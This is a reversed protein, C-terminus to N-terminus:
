ERRRRGAPAAAILRFFQQGREFAALTGALQDDLLAAGMGPGRDVFFHLDHGIPEVLLQGRLLCDAPRQSADRDTATASGANMRMRGAVIGAARWQGDRWLMPWARGHRGGLGGRGADSREVLKAAVGHGAHEQDIKQARKGGRREQQRVLVRKAAIGVRDHRLEEKRDAEGKPQREAAPRLGLAQGRGIAVHDAAHQPQRQHREHDVVRRGRRRVQSASTSLPGQSASRRDSLPM